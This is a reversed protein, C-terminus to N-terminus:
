SEDELLAKLEEGTLLAPPKIDADKPPAPRAPAPGATPPPSEAEALRRLSEGVAQPAVLRVGSLEASSMGAPVEGFGIMEVDMSRAIELVRLHRGTLAALDIVLALTPASLVEAAAEYASSVRLPEFAGGLAGWGDVMGARSFIVVRLPASPTGGNGM